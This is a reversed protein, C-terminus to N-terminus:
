ASDQSCILLDIVLEQSHGKDIVLMLLAEVQTFVLSVVQAVDSLGDTLPEEQSAEVVLKSTVRVGLNLIV